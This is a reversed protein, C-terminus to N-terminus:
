VGDYITENQIRFRLNNLGSKAAYMFLNDGKHLKFWDIDKGLTNLINVYVGDRLLQISKKGSMTKIIIEDGSKIDSGTLTKLKASDIHMEERTDTNYISLGSADGISDIVITIGVDADGEYLVNAETVRNLIGFMLKRETFSDNEFPFEFAPEVGYFVSIKDGASDYFYPDPCLISVSCGEASSFIEIDNSEVYGNAYCDRTDTVIRFKIPKKVPFYQYSIRRFEEINSGVFQATFVINRTDLRASNFIGGDGAATDMINIDADCPALGTISTIAFGSEYPATLDFKMSDGLHNTVEIYQIM